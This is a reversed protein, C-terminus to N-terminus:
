GVKDNGLAKLMSDSGPAAMLAVQFSKKVLFGHYHSLTEDYASKAAKNADEGASVKKLMSFIFQMARCLSMVLLGAALLYPSAFTLLGSCSTLLASCSTSPRPIKPPVEQVLPSRDLCLDQGQDKGGCGRGLHAQESKSRSEQRAGGQAQYRERRCREQRPQVRNRSSRYLVISSSVLFRPSQQDFNSVSSPSSPKLQRLSPQALSTEM